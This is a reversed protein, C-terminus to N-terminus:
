KEYALLFKTDALAGGSDVCKVQFEQFTPNLRISIIACRHKNQGFSSVQAAGGKVLGTAVVKSM